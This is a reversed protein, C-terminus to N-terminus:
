QLLVVGHGVLCQWLLTCQLVNSTCRYEGTISLVFSRVSWAGVPCMSCRLLVWCLGSVWLALMMVQAMFGAQVLLRMLSPRGAFNHAWLPPKLLVQLVKGYRLGPAM